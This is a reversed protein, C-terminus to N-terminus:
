AVLQVKVHFKRSLVQYADNYKSDSHEEPVMGIAAAMDPYNKYVKTLDVKAAFEEPLKGVDLVRFPKGAKGTGPKRPTYDSSTLSFSSGDTPRIRLQLGHRAVATMVPQSLKGDNGYVSVWIMGKTLEPDITNAADTRAQSHLATDVDVRQSLLSSVDAGVTKLTQIAADIAAIRAVLENKDVM